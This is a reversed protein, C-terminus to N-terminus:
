SLLSLLDDVELMEYSQTHVSGRAGLAVSIRAITSADPAEIINVFDYPGLVFWQHVVKAGMEEVDRNV